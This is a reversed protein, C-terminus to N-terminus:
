IFFHILYRAYDLLGGFGVGVDVSEDFVQLGKCEDAVVLDGLL